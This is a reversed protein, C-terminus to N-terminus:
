PQEAEIRSALEDFREIIRAAGVFGHASVTVAKHYNVGVPQQQYAPYAAPAAMRAMMLGAMKMPDDTPLPEEPPDFQNPLEILKVEVSLAYRKPLSM